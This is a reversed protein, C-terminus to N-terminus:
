PRCQSLVSVAALEAHNGCGTSEGGGPRASFLVTDPCLFRILMILYRSLYFLLYTFLFLCSFFVDDECYRGFYDIVDGGETLIKKDM